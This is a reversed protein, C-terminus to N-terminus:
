QSQLWCYWPMLILDRLICFGVTIDTGGIFSLIIYATASFDDTLRAKIGSASPNLSFLVFMPRVRIKQRLYSSIVDMYKNKLYVRPVSKVSGGPAGSKALNRKTSMNLWQVWSETFFGMICCNVVYLGSLITIAVM